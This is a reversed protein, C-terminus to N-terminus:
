PKVRYIVKVSSNVMRRAHVCRKTQPLIVIFKLNGYERRDKGRRNEGASM